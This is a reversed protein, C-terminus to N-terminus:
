AFYTWREAARGATSEARCHALGRAKLAQLARAIDATEVHRAFLASIETRTLGAPTDKLARLITDATDDGLSDGFVFRASDECYRWVALAAEVHHRELFASHDLLTYLLALRICKRRPGRPSPASCAPSARPCPPTCRAGSSRRGRRDLDRAARRPCRDQRATCRNSDALPGIEIEGGGFPLVKSRRVCAFLFRNAM